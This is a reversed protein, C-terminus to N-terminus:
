GPAERGRHVRGPQIPRQLRGASRRLNQDAACLRRLRPRDQRATTASRAIQADVARRAVKWLASGGGTGPQSTTGDLALANPALEASFFFLAALAARGPDISPEHRAKLRSSAARSFGRDGGLAGYISRRGSRVQIFVGHGRRFRFRWVGLRDLYSQRVLRSSAPLPEGYIARASCFRGHLGWRTEVSYVLSTLHFDSPGLLCV